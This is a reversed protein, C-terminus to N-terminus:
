SQVEASVPRLVGDRVLHEIIRETNKGDHFEIIQRYRDIYDQKQPVGYNEKVAATIEPGTMAVPGFVNGLNLMLKTGEGYHTMCADKEAWYFVVKAGRYFADYSISSYDTILVETDRLVGEYSDPVRIRSCMEADEADGSEAIDAFREAMLPHPLIVVKDRLDEPVSDYMLRMMRYYNTQTIDERAQNLEWRRWTPMIVVRDAGDHRFAKDFKAMGTIYLDERDMGGLEIFHQAELESSVVTKHLKMWPKKLFGSRNEKNLSIMYTPGHQLFVYSLPEKTIKDMAAKNAVRLQLAHDLTETSIFKESAFYYELHKDSDKEILNKKYREPLDRVTPISTDVVFYANDYGMDILKEYLVSASEEYKACHKEYMFIIDRDKLKEANKAARELRAQEEPRDYRNTDRVTLTVRNYKNQRLYYTVGDHVFLPGNRNQGTRRDLLEYSIFGEYQDKYIVLLKNQIDFNRADKMDIVLKYTNLHSAKPGPMGYRSGFSIDAANRKSAVDIRVQKTDLAEKGNVFRTLCIGSVVICGHEERIKKTVLGIWPRPAKETM